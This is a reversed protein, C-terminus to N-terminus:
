EKGNNSLIKEATTAMIAVAACITIMLDWPKRRVHRKAKTLTPFTKETVVRAGVAITWHGEERDLVFSLGTIRKSRVIEYRQKKQPLKDMKKPDPLIGAEVAAEAAKSREARSKEVAVPDIGM